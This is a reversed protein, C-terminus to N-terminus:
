APPGKPEDRWWFFAATVGMAFFVGMAVPGPQWILFLGDAATAAAFLVTRFSPQRAGAPTEPM